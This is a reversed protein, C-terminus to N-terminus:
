DKNRVKTLYGVSPRVNLEELVAYYRENRTLKSIESNPDNLDGFVIAKGPCSQQCAMQIEGDKLDRGEKKAQLKGEQIRQICMSCKEMVGRSRVSIDPNLALKAVKDNLNFDFEPNDAYDFWNFRRVKYPCNNACYRTGVCRNYVQQNLGDSSHVTALVPCVTECPANACHQCMMPQHVVEPNEESGNYYRDIRIWGMERRREVEEKGVVPVNNEVQCSILCSSCGTCANLDIAMGWSHTGEKWAPWLSILKPRDDNGAAPNKRYEALTAEKVIPRHEMSSHTQTTAIGGRRGTKELALGGQAYVLAGEQFGVLPYLNQGVGDGVKGARTRGYGLAAAVTRPPMGPQLFIPLEVARGNWTLRVLDGEKLGRREAEAPAVKLVNDWTVKTVPDPLEQLWPNNAQRGERLAVPEYLALEFDGKAQASVAAAIKAVAAGLEGAFPYERAPVSDAAFVGDQVSHNWFDQFLLHRSQKPFLNKEWYNRLYAYFDQPAEMWRLLSDQFSRTEFLPAILPQAVQFIPERPQADNWAELFHLDPCVGKAAVATEDLYPSFSLSLPIKKLWEGFAKGEPHDYCPNVGHILLAQVQGQKLEEMLQSFDAEDGQKQLSPNDLDLTKGINGLRANLAAVALQTSVDNSGCVVLSEGRHAWLDAAAEDLLKEDVEPRPFEPIGAAGALRHVRQLLALVVPGTQSPAIPVRRDANSGTLTFDSEFQLHRSIDGGPALKRNATYQQTYEVPSLWTGLFDAQIGVIRKAGEFRFHPVVAKGFALRHAERLARASIPDYAVHRSGPFRALFEAILARTTPSLITGTLLVLKGGSSLSSLAAKVKQDLAEWDTEAGEWRPKKLRGNDYLTLLSAQGVACVGGRNLPSETNGEVKIPRGDRSKVLLGCGASCSACTTAYWNAEGPTLEAPKNLFPLAQHVPSRTCAVMAVTGLSFGMLKLFDRRSSNWEPFEDARAELLGPERRLEELSQWHSPTSKKTEKPDKM